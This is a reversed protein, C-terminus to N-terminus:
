RRGRMGPPHFIWDNTMGTFAELTSDGRRFDPGLSEVIVCADLRPGPTRRSSLLLTTLIKIQIRIILEHRADRRSPGAM